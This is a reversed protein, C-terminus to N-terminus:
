RKRLKKPREFKIKGTVEMWRLMYPVVKNWDERCALAMQHRFEQCVEEARKYSEMKRKSIKKDM